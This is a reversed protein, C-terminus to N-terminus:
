TLIAAPADVAERRTTNRRRGLRRSRWFWNRSGARGPACVLRNRLRQDARRERERRLDNRRHLALCGINVIENGAERFTALDGAVQSATHNCM